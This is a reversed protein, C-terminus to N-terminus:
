DAVYCDRESNKESLKTEFVLCCREREREDIKNEKTGSEMYEM